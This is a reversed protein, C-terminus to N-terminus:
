DLTLRNAVLEEGGTVRRAWYPGQDGWTARGHPRRYWFNGPLTDHWGEGFKLTSSKNGERAGFM